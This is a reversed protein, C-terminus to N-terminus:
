SPELDNLTMLNPVLSRACLSGTLSATALVARLM